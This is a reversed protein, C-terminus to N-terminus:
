FSRPAMIERFTSPNLMVWRTALGLMAGLSARSLIRIIICMAPYALVHLGSINSRFLEVGIVRQYWGARREQLAFYATLMCCVRGVALYKRYFAKYLNPLQVCNRWLWRSNESRWKSPSRSLFRWSQCWDGLPEVLMLCDGVHRLLNVGLISGLSCIRQRIPRCALHGAIWREAFFLQSRIWFM